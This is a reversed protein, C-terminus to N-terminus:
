FVVDISTSLLEESSNYLEDKTRHYEVKLAASPHFDWRLGASMASTETDGGYVSTAAAQLQNFTGAIEEPLLAGNLSLLPSKKAEEETHEYVVYPTLADFQYALSVYYNTGDALTSDEIELLTYEGIISLSDKNIGFGFATFTGTDEKFLVETSAKALANSFPPLAALGVSLQAMGSSLEPLGDVEISVDSQFYATRFSLWDYTLEWSFGTLDEVIADANAAEIRGDFSGYVLQLSSDIDGWSTQHDLRIGELTSFISQYVSKPTRVWTFAYGVDLFESYKYFPIRVKGVNATLEDSLEYSIYAWELDPNFDNSGKGLIQMTASLGDSLDARGQLGFLSGQKFNINDDFDYVKDKDDLTMGAMITSFGNFAIDAYSTSPLAMLVALATYKLKM